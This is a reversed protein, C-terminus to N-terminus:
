FYCIFPCIFSYAHIESEVINKLMLENWGFYKQKIISINQASLEDLKNKVKINKKFLPVTYLNIM